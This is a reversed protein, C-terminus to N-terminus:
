KLMKLKRIELQHILVEIKALIMQLFEAIEIMIVVLIIESQVVIEELLQVIRFLNELKIINNM